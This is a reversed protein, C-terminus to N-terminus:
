GIATPGEDVAGVRTAENVRPVPVPARLPAAAAARAARPAAVRGAPDSVEGSPTLYGADSGLDITQSEGAAVTVWRSTAGAYADGGLDSGPRTTVPVDVSTAGDNRIVLASGSVTATVSDAAAAWAARRQMERGLEALPPNVLPTSAAFLADYERLMENLVPYLIGDGTINSQHVYHPRPDMGLAHSLAHGAEQPVIYEEFGTAPDLPDICTSAHNTECIGSGGNAASTYIWNYEDVANARTSTNYFINMPHRPVTLAPGVRRQTPEISADAAIWRVGTTELGPTLAPNDERRPGSILGSHQGTVLETPDLPVGEGRAWDINRQIQDTIEQESSFDLNSHDWTHNIWRFENRSALLATTLEDGDRAGFANFAMDLEIDNADEWQRATDVDAANMRSETRDGPGPAGNCDVGFTCNGAANWEDDALFVDDVQINVTNRYLSTSIGRTLWSIMGHSLARFQQQYGNIAFTLVLRERTGETHVGMLSGTGPGDGTALLPRFSSDPTAPVGWSEFMEPDFDEFTVDGELYSWDGALADPTLSVTTGDLTLGDTGSLGVAASPATFPAIERIGYDAAFADLVANEEASLGPRDASESVIGMYRATATADDALMARTIQPRGATRLEIRDVEVGEAVLRNALSDSHYDGNDLVLVRLEVTPKRDPAPTTTTPPVSTSTPTSTPATSSTTAPPTSGGSGSSGLSGTQATAIGVLPATIAGTFALAAVTRISTRQLPTLGRASDGNNTISM